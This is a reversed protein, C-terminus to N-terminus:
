NSDRARQATLFELIAQRFEPKLSCTMHNAGPLVVVPVDTRVAALPKVRQEYLNDDAGVVVTFPTRIALLQERTIGLRPFSRACAALPRNTDGEQDDATASPAAEDRAELWGMGGVVASRVRQPHVAMMNLTIMGGMSYGVLHAREIHLHDLLRVQDDVMQTGYEAVGTPKDSRGHGRNDIVIVRYHEALLATTGPLGWNLAGSASFGHILLVPEGQGQLTYHIKVGASDFYGDELSAGAVPGTAGLTLAALLAGAALAARAVNRPDAFYRARRRNM